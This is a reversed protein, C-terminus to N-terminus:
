IKFINTDDIKTLGLKQAHAYLKYQSIEHDTNFLEGGLNYYRLAPIKYITISHKSKNNIENVNAEFEVYNDCKEYAKIEITRETCFYNFDDEIQQFPKVLFLILVNEGYFERKIYKVFEDAVNQKRFKDNLILTPIYVIKNYKNADIKNTKFLDILDIYIENTECWDNLLEIFNVKNNKALSVNFVNYLYEGIPMTPRHIGTQIFNIYGQITKVYSDNKLGFDYNRDYSTSKFVINNIIDSERKSNLVESKVSDEM